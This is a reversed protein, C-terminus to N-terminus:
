FRVTNARVLLPTIRAWLGSSFPIRTGSRQTIAHGAEGAAGGVGLARHGVLEDRVFMVDALMAFVQGLNAIPLPFVSPFTLSPLSISVAIM